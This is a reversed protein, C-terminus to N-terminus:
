RPRFPTGLGPRQRGVFTFGDGLELLFDALHRILAEGLDSASDDDKLDLFELIFPDRITEEPTLVDRPEPREGDAVMRTKNLSLAAREFFQSDIQRDLQRVYASWPLPFRAALATPDFEASM